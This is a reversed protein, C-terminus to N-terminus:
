SSKGIFLKPVSYALGIISATFLIIFVSKLGFLFGLGSLLKADGLGM